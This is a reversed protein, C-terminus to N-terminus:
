FAIENEPHKRKILNICKLFNVRRSSLKKVKWTFTDKIDFDNGSNWNQKQFTLLKQRLKVLILRLIEVFFFIRKGNRRLAFIKDTQSLTKEFDAASKSWLNYWVPTREKSGKRECRGDARSCQQFGLFVGLTSTYADPVAATILAETLLSTPYHVTKKKWGPNSLFAENVTASCLLLNSARQDKYVMNTTRSHVRFSPLYHGSFALFLPTFKCNSCIALNGESTDM